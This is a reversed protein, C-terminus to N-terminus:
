RAPGVGSLLTHMKGLFTRMATLGEQSWSLTTYGGLNHDKSDFDTITYPNEV